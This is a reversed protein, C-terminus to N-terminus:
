ISLITNHDNEECENKIGDLSRSSSGQAHNFDDPYQFNFNVLLNEKRLTYVCPQSAVSFNLTHTHSFHIEM